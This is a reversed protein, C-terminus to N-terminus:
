EETALTEIASVARAIEEETNFFSFSFRVAGQEVTGFTKHMLPACHAGARTAMAFRQALEDAVIASDYTGINMAVIPARMGESFDGYITVEPIDKIGEYFQRTLRQEKQARAEADNAKRELLAARLGAIGHANLTGSELATPYERPHERDFSHMGSGGVKLPRLTVDERVCIGGTGQPGMLGKHGTFCLAAINMEEMDIPLVGASQASDVVLYLAHRKCIEGVRSLDIVNGTLNSAHTCIVAKTHPRIAQEMAEYSINGTVPDAPLVTLEVGRAEMRYCPRLVSNHELATTIVHDGPCLMGQIVTNLSETVNQTFVVREPASFHFLEALLERTETLVRMASLSGEHVGRSANGISQIAEYVAQAVEPPKQLTTAANDFYIM